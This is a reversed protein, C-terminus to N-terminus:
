AAWVAPAPAWHVQIPWTTTPGAPTAKVSQSTGSDPYSCETQTEAAWGWHADRERLRRLIADAIVGPEIRYDGRAIRHKLESLRTETEEDM